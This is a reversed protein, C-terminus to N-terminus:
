LQVKPSPDDESQKEFSKKLSSFEKTKLFRNINKISVGSYFALTDANKPMDNNALYTKLSLKDVEDKSKCNPCISDESAFFCGCRECKNFKM